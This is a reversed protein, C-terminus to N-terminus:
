LVHELLKILSETSLFHVERANWVEKCAAIGEDLPINTYISTADMSVLITDDPLKLSPM